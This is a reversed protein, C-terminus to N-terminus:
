LKALEQKAMEELSPMLADIEEINLANSVSARAGSELGKIVIGANEYRSAKAMILSSLDLVSENKGRYAAEKAIKDEDGPIPTKDIIRKARLKKELWETTEYHDAKGAIDIRCQTAFARIKDVAKSKADTLQAELDLVWQTGIWKDFEGPQLKTKGAPIDGLETLQSNEKTSVDWISGRNDYLALWKGSKFVACEGPKLYPLAECTSCAPLGTNAEIKLTVTNIFIGTSEDYNHLEIDRDKDSFEFNM